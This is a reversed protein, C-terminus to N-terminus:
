VSSKADSDAEPNGGNRPKATRRRRSGKAHLVAVGLERVDESDEQDSPRVVERRVMLIQVRDGIKPRPVVVVVTTTRVRYDGVFLRKLLSGQCWIEVAETQRSSRAFVVLELELGLADPGGLPWRFNLAAVHAWSWRGWAEAQHWGYGFAEAFAPDGASIRQDPWPAAGETLELTRADAAPRGFLRAVGPVQEDLRSQIDYGVIEHLLDAVTIPSYEPAIPFGHSIEGDLATARVGLADAEHLVSSSIAVVEDVGGRLLLAYTNESTVWVNRLELLVRWTEYPADKAPHARVYAIDFRGVIDRLTPAYDQLTALRDGRVLASDDFVQLAILGKHFQRPGSPTVAPSARWADEAAQLTQVRALSLAAQAAHLSEPHRNMVGNSKALLLIQDGFRVPHIRVDVAGACLRSAMAWISPPTEFGLYFRGKLRRELQVEVGAKRIHERNALWFATERSPVSIGLSEPTLIDVSRTPSILAALLRILGVNRRQSWEGGQFRFVDGGVCVDLDLIM